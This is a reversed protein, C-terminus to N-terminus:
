LACFGALIWTTRSRAIGFAWASRVLRQTSPLDSLIGAWVGAREQTDLCIRDMREQIALDADLANRVQPSVAGAQLALSASCVAIGRVAMAVLYGTIMPNREFHRALRFTALATRVAEDRNGESSLLKARIQLIRADGRCKQVTPLLQNALFVDTPVTYDLQADYDPCAAAQELLPIVKPHADFVAQVIKQMEPPMLSDEDNKHQGNGTPSWSRRWQRSIPNLGASTRPPTRTRRSQSEPSIPWRSRIAQRASRRWSARLGHIPSGCLYANAVLLIAVLGGLVIGSWKLIKKLRKM